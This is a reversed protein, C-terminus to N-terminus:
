KRRLILIGDTKNKENELASRFTKKDYEHFVEKVRDLDDIDTRPENTGYDYLYAFYITKVKELFRDLLLKYEELENGKFMLYLYDSINSLFMYDFDDDLVLDKLNSNIHRISVDNLRRKVKEYYDKELYINEWIKSDPNFHKRNFLKSYALNYWKSNRILKLWYDKSEEPIDLSKIFKSDIEDDIYLFIDLFEEFSLKKISGIKLDMYYKARPNLDFTTIDNSGKAIANIVHDGSGTVTITKKNTLDLDSMYGAINETTFPYISNFREM